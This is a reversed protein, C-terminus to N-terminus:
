LLVGPAVPAVDGRGARLEMYVSRTPADTSFGYKEYLGRANRTFLAFRRLGQLDAHAVLAEIMWGGIGLGRAEEAVIVDTLYAYTALDSVARAFALQVGGSNYVGVTISNEIARELQRRTMAGGWHSGRLMSLVGDLDVRSRDTSLCLDGRTLNIPHDNM